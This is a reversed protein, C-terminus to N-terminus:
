ARLGRHTIDLPDHALLHPHGLDEVLGAGHRHRHDLGSRAVHRLPKVGAAKFHGEMPKTARGKRAEAFALQVAQYGDRETSKVQAVFCPGAKIVTVPVARAEEFLQTMGLKEGLIGKVEPM